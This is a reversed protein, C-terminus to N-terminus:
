DMDWGTQEDVLGVYNNTPTNLWNQVHFRRVAAFCIDPSSDCISESEKCFEEVLQADQYNSAADIGFKAVDFKNSFEPPPTAFNRELLLWRSSAITVILTSMTYLMEGPTFRITKAIGSWSSHQTSTGSSVYRDLLYITIYIADDYEDSNDSAVAPEEYHLPLHTESNIIQERCWLFCSRVCQLLENRGSDLDPRKNKFKQNVFLEALQEPLSTPHQSLVDSTYLMVNNADEQFGSSTHPQRKGNRTASPKNDNQGYKKWGWKEGLQYRYQKVTAKFDLDDEMIKMVVPLPKEELKYLKYLIDHYKDWDRKAGRSGKRPASEGTDQDSGEGDQYGQKAFDPWLTKPPTYSSPYNM